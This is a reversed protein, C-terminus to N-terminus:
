AIASVYRAADVPPIAGRAELEAAQDRIAGFGERLTTLIRRV